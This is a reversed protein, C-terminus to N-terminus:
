GRVKAIEEKLKEFTIGDTKLLELVRKGAKVALEAERKKAQQLLAAAEARLQEPTKKPM